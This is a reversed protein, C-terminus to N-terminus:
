AIATTVTPTDAFADTLEIEAHRVPGYDMPECSWGSDSLVALMLDNEGLVDAVLRGIGHSRAVQTLHRLLATGVGHSHDQHAVAIAIEAVKPDDRAVVYNAVGILRQSDFAGVSCRGLGPVTMKTVVQDLDIPNLTFFRFYRDHDSLHQHLALVAEADAFGLRRLSVVRGDLLRATAAFEALRDSMMEGRFDELYGRGVVERM